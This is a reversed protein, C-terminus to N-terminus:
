NTVALKTAFLAITRSYVDAKNWQQIVAFNPQGPEWGAGRQWGYEHLYNATSALVDPASRILNRGGVAFKLYSSPMFQTQGLEGAWAGRMASPTLDGREILRLADLLEAQFKETRRCDFALTALAQLTPTNGNVAGFDTELGWIAVLVPGPVGYTEEIRSLISAYQKLLLAGKHLRSPSVMRGSFQEFSQDFVGQGHDRSIINPDYSVDDLANIASASIGQAAAEKKMSAIFAGFGGPDRCTAAEAALLGAILTLSSLCFALIFSRMTSSM